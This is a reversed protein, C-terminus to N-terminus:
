QTILTKFRPFGRRDYIGSGLVASGYTAVEGFPYVADRGRLAKLAIEDFPYDDIFERLGRVLAWYARFRVLLKAFDLIM